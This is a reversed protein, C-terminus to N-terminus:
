EGGIDDKLQHLTDLAENLKCRCEILEEVADDLYDMCIEWNLEELNM